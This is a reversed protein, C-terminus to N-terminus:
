GLRFVQLCFLFQEFQTPEQM